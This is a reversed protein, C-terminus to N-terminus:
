SVALKSMGEEMGEEDEDVAEDVDEDESGDTSPPLDLGDLYGGGGGGEEEGGGERRDREREREGLGSLYANQADIVAKADACGAYM